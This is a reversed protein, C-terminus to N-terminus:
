LMGRKAYTWKGLQPKSALCRSLSFLMRGLDGFWLIIGGYPSDQLLLHGKGQVRGVLM